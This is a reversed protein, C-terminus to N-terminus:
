ASLRMAKEKEAAVNERMSQAEDYSVLTCEHFIPLAQDLSQIAKEFFHIREEPQDTQIAWARYLQALKTHTRAWDLPREKQSYVHLLAQCGAIADNLDRILIERQITARMQEAERSSHPADEQFLRLAKEISKLAKALTQSQEARTEILRVQECYLEALKFHTRARDLRRERNADDEPQVKLWARCGAIAEDLTEKRVTPKEPTEPLMGQLLAGPSLGLARAIGALTEEGLRKIQHHEVKSIYGRGTAGFGAAVALETVSMGRYRRWARITAGLTQAEQLHPELERERRGRM